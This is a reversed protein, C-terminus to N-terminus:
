INKNKVSWTFFMLFVSLIIGGVTFITNLFDFSHQSIERSLVIGYIILVILNNLVELVRTDM